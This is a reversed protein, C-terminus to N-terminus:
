AVALDRSTEVKVTFPRPEHPLNAAIVEPALAEVLSVLEEFTEAEVVLGPIDSQTTFVRAEADWHATFTRSTPRFYCPRTPNVFKTPEPPARAEKRLGTVAVFQAAHSAVRGTSPRL